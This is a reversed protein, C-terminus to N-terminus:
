WIQYLIITVNKGEDHYKSLIICREECKNGFITSSENVNDNKRINKTLEVSSIMENVTETLNKEGVRLNSQQVSEKCQLETKKGLVRHPILTKRSISKYVQTKSAELVTQSQNSEPEKIGNIEQTFDSLLAYNPVEPIKFLRVNDDFHNALKENILKHFNNIFSLLTTYINKSEENIILHENLLVFKLSDLTTLHETQTTESRAVCFNKTNKETNCTSTNGSDM